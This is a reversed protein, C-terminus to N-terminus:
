TDLKKHMRRLLTELYNYFLILVILKANYENESLSITSFVQMAHFQKYRLFFPASCDSALEFVFSDKIFFFTM